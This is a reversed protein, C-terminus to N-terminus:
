PFPSTGGFDIGKLGGATWRYRGDRVTPSTDPWPFRQATSAVNYNVPTPRIFGGAANWYAGMNADATIRVDVSNDALAVTIRAKEHTFYAPAKWYHRDFEDYLWVKRSPYRIHSSVRRGFKYLDQSGVSYAYTSHSAGQRLSGNDSTFKDPTYFATTFTYSSSYPVRTNTTGGIPVGQTPREAWQAREFDSPCRIVPEPIRSAMYDMLPLHSYFIHPIWAGQFPFTPNSPASRRRIIDVAQWSAANLDDTFVRSTTPLAEAGPPLNRVWSFGSLRDKFDSTYISNATSMQRLNSMCLVQKARRRAFGLAPLLISVLLAIIAIVVLLEILTFGRRRNTTGRGM